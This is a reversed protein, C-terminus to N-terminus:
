LYARLARATQDCERAERVCQRAKTELQLASLHAPRGAGPKKLERVALRYERATRRHQKAAAQLDAIRTRAENPTM